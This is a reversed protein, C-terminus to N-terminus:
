EKQFRVGLFHKSYHAAINIHVFKCERAWLRITCYNHVEYLTGIMKWIFIRDDTAVTSTALLSVSRATHFHARAIKLNYEADYFYPAVLTIHSQYRSM